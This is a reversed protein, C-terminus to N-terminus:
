RSISQKKAKNASPDQDETLKVENPYDDIQGIQGIIRLRSNGKSSVLQLGVDFETKFSQCWVVTGVLSNNTKLLSVSAHIRQDIKISTAALV